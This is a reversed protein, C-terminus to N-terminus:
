VNPLDFLLFEAKKEGKSTGIITILSEDSIFAGDGPRLIEDNVKINGGTMCVHIYGKRGSVFSHEVKDDKKLVSAFVSVDQNIIIM